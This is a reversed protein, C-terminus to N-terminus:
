SPYSCLAVRLLLTQQFPRQNVDPQGEPLLIQYSILELINTLTGNQVSIAYPPISGPPKGLTPRQVVNRWSRSLVARPLSQKGAEFSDFCGAYRKFGGNERQM